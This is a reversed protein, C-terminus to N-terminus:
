NEGTMLYRKDTFKMNIGRTPIGHREVERMFENRQQEYEARQEAQMEAICSRCYDETHGVRNVECRRCYDFDFFSM